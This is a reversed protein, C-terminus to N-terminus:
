KVFVWESEPVDDPSKYFGILSMAQGKLIWYDLYLNEDGQNLNHIFDMYDSTLHLFACEEETLTVTEGDYTFSYM